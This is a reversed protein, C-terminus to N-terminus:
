IDSMQLFPRVDEVCGTLSVSKCLGLEFSAARLQEEAPGSGVILCRCAPHEKAVLSFAQLLLEIRKRPVLRSVCAIM